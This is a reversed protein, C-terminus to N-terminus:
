LVDRGTSRAGQDGTWWSRKAAASDRSRAGTPDFRWSVDGLDPRYSPSRLIAIGLGVLLLGMSLTVLPPAGERLMLGLQLIRFGGLVTFVLGFGLSVLGMTRVLINFVRWYWIGWSKM